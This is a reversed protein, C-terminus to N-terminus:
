RLTKHTWPAMRTRLHTSTVPGTLPLASRTHLDCHVTSLLSRFNCIPSGAGLTGRAVGQRDSTGVCREVQVQQIM